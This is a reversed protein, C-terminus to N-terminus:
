LEIEIIDAAAVDVVVAGVFVIEHEYGFGTGQEADAEVAGDVSGAESRFFIHVRVAPPAGGEVEVEVWFGPQAQGQAGFIKVVM